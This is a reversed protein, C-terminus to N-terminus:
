LLTVPPRQNLATRFPVSYGAHERETKLTLFQGFFFRKLLGGLFQQQLKGVTLAREWSKTDSFQGSTFAAEGVPRLFPVPPFIVLFFHHPSQRKWDNKNGM